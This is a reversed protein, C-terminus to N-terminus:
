PGSVGPNMPGPPLEPGVVVSSSNGSTASSSGTSGTTTSGASPAPGLTSATIAVPAVPQARHAFRAAAPLDATAATHVTHHLQQTQRWAAPIASGVVGITIDRVAPATPTAVKQPDGPWAVVVAVGSVAVACVAAIARLPLRRRPAPQPDCGLIRIRATTDSSTAFSM